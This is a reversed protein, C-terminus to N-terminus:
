KLNKKIFVSALIYLAATVAETIMSGGGLSIAASVASLIGLVMLWNSVANVYIIEDTNGKEYECISKACLHLKRFYFVNMLVMILAIASIVIGVATIVISIVEFSSLGMAELSDLLGFIESEIDVDAIGMSELSFTIEPLYADIIDGVDSVLWDSLLVAVMGAFFFIGTSVWLLIKMAKLTGSIMVAGTGLKEGDRAKSYSIWMGITLLVMLVNVNSFALEVCTLVSIMICLTLFLPGSFIKKLDYRGSYDTSVAIESVSDFENKEFDQNNMKYEKENNKSPLFRLVAMIDVFYFAFLLHKLANKM